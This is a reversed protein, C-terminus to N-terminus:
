RGRASPTSVSRPRALVAVPQRALLPAATPDFIRYALLKVRDNVLFCTLAYAHYLHVPLHLLARLVGSPPAQQSAPATM